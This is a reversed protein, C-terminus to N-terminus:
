PVTIRGPASNTGTVTHCSNCDGNTQSASMRAVTTGMEVRATYPTAFTGTELMFNGASNVALRHETGSADTIVVTINSATGAVGSCDNPEHKTPYITGAVAFTPADPETSHCAICAEGPRMRENEGQRQTWTSGSTCVPTIPTTAAVTTGTGAGGGVGSVSGGVSTTGVAAGGVSSLGGTGMVTDAGSADSGCGGFMLPTAASVFLWTAFTLNRRHNPM